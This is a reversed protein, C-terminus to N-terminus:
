AALAYYVADRLNVPFAGDSGEFATNTLSVVTLERRPNVFWDHGYGGGWRWTGADHPSRDLTSDCLVAAGMGFRWGSDPYSVTQPLQDTAILEVYRRDVIPAGGRRLTELFSMFDPASGVMGAGGSAFSNRDFIRSPSFRVIGAGDPLDHPDSMPIPRPMAEAYPVALRDVDRVLFATDGMALPRTVYRRVLEPLTTQAARAIVEGLVDTSLSYNWGEGPLFRLPVKTLRALEEDISLGPCDMGNSINLAEFIERCVDFGYDLGSTHTLLHRVLIEPREGKKTTPRFAPLWKATPEDLAILGEAILALTAVTVIPKTLSALRFITDERMPRSHERDAHGAARRYIVEGELAIMIVAGVIRERRLASELVDDVHFALRQVTTKDPSTSM